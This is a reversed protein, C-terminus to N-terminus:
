ADVKWPGTIRVICAEPNEEVIVAVAQQQTEARVNRSSEVSNVSYTIEYMM